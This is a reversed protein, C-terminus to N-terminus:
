HTHPQGVQLSSLNQTHKQTHKHIDIPHAAGTVAKKLHLITENMLPVFTAAKINMGQPTLYNGTFYVTGYFVSSNM